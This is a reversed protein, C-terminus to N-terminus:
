FLDFCKVCGAVVEDFVVIHCRQLDAAIFQLVAGIDQDLAVGAFEAAYCSVFRVLVVIVDLIDDFAFLDDGDDRSFLQDNLISVIRFFVDGEVFIREFTDIMNKGVAVEQDDSGGVAMHRAYAGIGLALDFFGYEFYRDSFLFLDFNLGRKKMAKEFVVPFMLDGYNEVDFTGTIAIHYKKKM